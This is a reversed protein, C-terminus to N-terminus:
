LRDVTQDLLEDLSFYESGPKKPIQAMAYEALATISLSPNVGLNCQVISGDLVYANPYNHLKFNADVVGEDDNKGM